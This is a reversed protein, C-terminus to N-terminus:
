VGRSPNIIEKEALFILCKARANAETDDVFTEVIRDNTMLLRTCYWQNGMLGKQTQYYAEGDNGPLMEGLEAVTYAPISKITPHSNTYSSTTIIRRTLDHSFYSEQKFGLEKMRKALDLSVVQQELTM